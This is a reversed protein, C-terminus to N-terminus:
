VYSCNNPSSVSASAGYHTISAVLCMSEHGCALGYFNERKKITIKNVNKGREMGRDNGHRWRIELNEVQVRKSNPNSTKTVWAEFYYEAHFLYCKAQWKINLWLPEDVDKNNVLRNQLNNNLGISVKKIKDDFDSIIQNLRKNYYGKPIDHFIPISSFSSVSQILKNM